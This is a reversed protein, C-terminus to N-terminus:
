VNKGAEMYRLIKQVRSSFSLEDRALSRSDRCYESLEGRVSYVENLTEVFAETSDECSFGICYKEFYPRIDGTPNSILPRNLCLYDGFKNPWRALNITTEPFPLVFVDSSSLYKNYDEFSVWGPYIIRGPLSHSSELRNIYEQDPGTMVVRFEMGSKSLEALAQFFHINENHDGPTVNSLGIIFADLDIGLDARAQEKTFDILNSSEAGGNLVIAEPLELRQKLDHTICVVWDYARKLRKEFLIDYLAKVNTLGKKGEAHGGRGLLEWCEDVSVSGHLMGALRAAFYNAPRHGNTVHIADCKTILVVYIKWLLDLFGFGGSRLSMPALGPTEVCRVGDVMVTKGFGRKPTPAVFTVEHGNAAYEKAAKLRVSYGCAKKHGEIFDSFVLIRM